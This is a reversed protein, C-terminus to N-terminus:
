RKLTAPGVAVYPQNREYLQLRHQAEPAAGADAIGVARQQLRVAEAFEGAAAHAAASADLTLFDESGLLRRARWAAEIATPPSRLSAEPCTALVWALSRYAEVSEPDADLSERYDAIAKEYYGAEAYVHGRATQASAHQPALRLAEDFDAAAERLRGLTHFAVGRTTLV